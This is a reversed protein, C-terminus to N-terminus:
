EPYYLRKVDPIDEYRVIQDPAQRGRRFGNPKEPDYDPNVAPIDADISALYADLQAELEAAKEPMEEALNHKEGIDKSLDLM